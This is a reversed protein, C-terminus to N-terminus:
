NLLLPPAHGSNPLSKPRESHAQKMMTRGNRRAKSRPMIICANTGRHPSPPRHDRHASTTGRPFTSPSYAGKDAHLRVVVPRTSSVRVIRRVRPVHVQVIAVHVVVILGIRVIYPRNACSFPPGAARILPHLIRYLIESRMSSLFSCTVFVRPISVDRIKEWQPNLNTVQVGGM